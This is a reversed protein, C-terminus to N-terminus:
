FGTKIHIDKVIWVRWVCITFTNQFVTKLSKKFIIPAYFWNGIVKQESINHLLLEVGVCSNRVKLIRIACYM